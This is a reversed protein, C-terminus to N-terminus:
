LTQYPKIEKRGKKGKKKREETQIITKNEMQPFGSNM